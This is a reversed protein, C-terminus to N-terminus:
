KARVCRRSAGPFHAPGAAAITMTAGCNLASCSQVASGTINVASVLNDPDSVTASITLTTGVNYNSGSNPGPSVSLTVSPPVANSVSFSTQATQGCVSAQVIWDGILSSTWAGGGVTANGSGDTTGNPYQSAAQVKRTRETEPTFWSDWTIGCSPAGGTVTYIPAMGVFPKATQQLTLAHATTANAVCLAAMAACPILLSKNIM